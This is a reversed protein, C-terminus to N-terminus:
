GFPRSRSLPVSGSRLLGREDRAGVVHQLPEVPRPRQQQGDCLRRRQAASLAGRSRGDHARLEDRPNRRVRVHERGHRRRDCKWGGGRCIRRGLRRRDRRQRRRDIGHRRRLGLGWWRRDAFRRRSRDILHARLLDREGRTSCLGVDLIYAGAEGCGNSPDVATGHGMNSILWEEVQVVGDATEYKTHTAPGVTETATATTSLGHVNTWQALLEDANGKTVIYDSTGQWIGVRPFQGVSPAAGRVLDGWQAATFSKSSYMCTYADTQTDACRYAIGSMVAGASFVDPYAALMVATMAGGASLGTVYVSGVDYRGKTTDIMQKISLTQGIDRRAQSSDYWAFCDNNTTAEPYLVLFGVQDALDNWGAKMYDAASQTCGHMAVVVPVHSTPLNAPAYLYM